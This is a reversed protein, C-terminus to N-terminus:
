TKWPPQTSFRARLFKVLASIDADSVQSGFAPM